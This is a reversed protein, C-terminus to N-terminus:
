VYSFGYWLAPIPFVRSLVEKGRGEKAWQWEREEWTGWVVQAAGGRTTSIVTEGDYAFVFTGNYDRFSLRRAEATGVREEMLPRLREMFQPFNLILQTGSAHAHRAPANCGRLLTRLLDDHSSVHVDVANLDQQTMLEDLAGMLATRDGAYEEFASTGDSSKPYLACYAVIDSGRRIVWLEARHHTSAGDRLFRQWEELPRFYRVPESEYIRKVDYLNADQYREVTVTGRQAAAIDRTVTFESDRGVKRCGARRYLSRDGSILMFDVGQRLANACADDFCASAFGRQRHQPYTSVAGVNGVRVHCGLIVADRITTGVHSVIGSPADGEVDYERIVRLNEFNDPTFLHPYEEGMTPPKGSRFVTNILAMLSEFEEPRVARPGDPM